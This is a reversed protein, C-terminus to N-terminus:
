TYSLILLVSKLYVKTHNREIAIGSPLEVLQFSIIIKMTSAVTSKSRKTNVKSM